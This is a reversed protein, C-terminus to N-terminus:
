SESESAAKGSDAGTAGHQKERRAARRALKDEHVQLPDHPTLLGMAILAAREQAETGRAPVADESVRVPERLLDAPASAPEPEPTVAEAPPTVPVDDPLPELPTPRRAILDNLVEEPAPAIGEGGEGEGTGVPPRAPEEVTVWGQTALAVIGETVEKLPGTTNIKEILEQVTMPARLTALLKRHLGPMDQTRWAHQGKDTKTLLHHSRLNMSFPLIKAHWRYRPKRIPDLARARRNRM